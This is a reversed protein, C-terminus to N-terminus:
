LAPGRKHAKHAREFLQLIPAGKEETVDMKKLAARFM